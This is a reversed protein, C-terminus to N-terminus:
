PMTGYWVLLLCLAHTSCLKKEIDFTVSKVCHKIAAGSMNNKTKNKTKKERGCGYSLHKLEREEKKRFAFLQCHVMKLRCWSVLRWGFFSLTLFGVEKKTFLPFLWVSSIIQLGLLFCGLM